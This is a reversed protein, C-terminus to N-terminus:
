GSCERTEGESGRGARADGHAIVNRSSNIGGAVTFELMQTAKRARREKELSLTYGAPLGM